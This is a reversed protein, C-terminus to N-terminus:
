KIFRITMPYRYSRGDNAAMGAVISLVLAGIALIPLLLLGILVLMLAICVIAYITVSIGFNLAEIAHKKVFESEDKKVLYIILPGLFTGLPIVYGSLMSLHALMGWTKEDKALGTEAPGKDGDIDM